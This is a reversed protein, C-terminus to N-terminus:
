ESSAGVCVGTKSNDCLVLRRGAVQRGLTGESSSEEGHETIDERRVVQLKIEGGSRDVM